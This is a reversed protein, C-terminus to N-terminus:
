EGKMMNALKRYTRRMSKMDYLPQSNIKMLEEKFQKNFQNTENIAEEVSIWKFRISEGPQFQVLQNLGLQTVTAIKTYGGVTQKDNLLIIPNGDNPVQISGLAVPESIIDASEEPAINEGKLRFGMRDSMESIVYENETLKSKAEESFSAIQPGEIIHIVNDKNALNIQSARGINKKYSPHEITQIVDDKKLSRGKYGGMKSRTHTSYSDAILPIDLPQGFTIYGRAGTIVNGIVLIDGPKVGYIIQSEIADGNLTANFRGGAITFSNEQLFQITPGIITFELAPGNNGILHSAIQYHHQDLAGAESFGVNMYGKRGIDQVTTFLGPKLIKISM